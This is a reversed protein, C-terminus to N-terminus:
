IEIKEIKEHNGRTKNAKKNTTAIGKRQAADDTKRPTDASASPFPTPVGLLSAQRTRSSSPRPPTSRRPQEEEYRRPQPFTEPALVIKSSINQRMELPSHPDHPRSHAHETCLMMIIMSRLLQQGSCLPQMKSRCPTAEEPLPFNVPTVWTPKAQTGPLRTYVRDGPQSCGNRSSFVRSVM